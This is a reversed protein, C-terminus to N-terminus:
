VSQWVKERCSARDLPRTRSAPVAVARDIRTGHHAAPGGCRRGHRRPCLGAARARGGPGASCTDARCREREVGDRTRRVTGACPFRGFIPLACTQVGTVLAGSTHGRRSSFFFFLFWLVM